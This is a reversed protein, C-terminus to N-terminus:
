MPIQAYHLGYPKKKNRSRSEHIVRPLSVLPALKGQLVVSKQNNGEGASSLFKMHKKRM